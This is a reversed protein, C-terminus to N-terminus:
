SWRDYCVIETLPKRSRPAPQQAPYGLTLLEVVCASEPIDLLRKVEDQKFAGIWCTGLGEEVAQLTMNTIAIATDIQYNPLGCSMVHGTETACAAIVVPAQGVFKQGNAAAVLKERLAPDRVVVFKREQVNRASPALRAAELVRLLKAEEVPRDEYARISRRERIATKVDM